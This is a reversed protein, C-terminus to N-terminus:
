ANRLKAYANDLKDIHDVGLLKMTNEMEDRFLSAMKHVGAQGAAMLGYLYPRGVLTGTAGMAVSALVDGGNLVSGDVYVEMSDGVASRVEPLIELPACGRDMQRGGHNSLVIGQVGLKKMELADEVTQIGKVLLPGGWEEQLWPIEALTVTPDFILKALEFLSKDYGRMAAFELPPTTLLNAWWKPKTAMNLFTKATVKPPVTLGNRNDRLRQGSVPTDVTLVLAEFNANRAQRIMERSQDRNQWLYLQFWRRGDPVARALDEPSVTGMTSLTYILDEEAAAAAVAYEGMYHMMRTYGTPALILPMSTPKGLVTRHLDVESVGRLVRPRFEVRRYADKSREISLEQLAGGEVYDFVAKPVRRASLDRLEGITQVRALARDGGFMGSPSGGLLPKITKWTPLQRKVSM